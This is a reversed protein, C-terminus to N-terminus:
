PITKSVENSYGSEEGSSSVVTVAFYYTSGSALNNAVYTTATGLNVTTTYNGSQTGYYIKYDSLDTFPTGDTNTTPANWSLTASGSATV